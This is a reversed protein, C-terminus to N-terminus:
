SDDSGVVEADADDFGIALAAEDKAPPPASIVGTPTVKVYGLGLRRDLTEMWRRVTGEREEVEVVHPVITEEKFREVEERWDDTRLPGKKWQRPKAQEGSEAAVPAVERCPFHTPNYFRRNYFEFSPHHLFLGLAPAAPIPVKERSFAHAFIAPASAPDTKTRLLLLLFGVLKRIQLLMFSQGTITVTVVDMGRVSRPGEISTATLHRSCSKDWPQRRITFNHHNHTGVLHPLFARVREVAASVSENTVAEGLPVISFTPLVYQYTRGDCRTKADFGGTVKRIGFIRIAPPLIENLRAVIGDIATIM